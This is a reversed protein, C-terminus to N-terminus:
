LQPSSSYARGLPVAIIIMIFAIHFEKIFSLAGGIEKVLIVQGIQTYDFLGQDKWSYASRLPLNNRRIFERLRVYTEAMEQVM